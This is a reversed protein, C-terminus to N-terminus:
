SKLSLNDLHDNVIREAIQAKTEKGGGDLRLEQIKRNSRSTLTVTIKVSSFGDGSAELAKKQKPM